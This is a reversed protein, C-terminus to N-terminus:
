GNVIERVKTVKDLYDLNIKFYKLVFETPVKNSPLTYGKEILSNEIEKKIKLARAEGVCGVKMIEKTGAYNFETIALIENATVNAM